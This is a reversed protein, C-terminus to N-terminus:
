NKRATGILRGFRYLALTPPLKEEDREEVLRLLGGYEGTPSTETLTLVGYSLGSAESFPGRYQVAADPPAVEIPYAVGLQLQKKEWSRVVDLDDSARYKAEEETDLVFPLISTSKLHFRCRRETLVPSSYGGAILAWTVDEALLTPNSTDSALIRTEPRGQGSESDYGLSVLETPDFNLCVPLASSGTQLLVGQNPLSHVSVIRFAGPDDLRRLVYGVTRM